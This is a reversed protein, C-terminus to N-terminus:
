DLGLAFYSYQPNYRKQLELDTFYLLAFPAQSLGPTENEHVNGYFRFRNIMPFAALIAELLNPLKPTARFEKIDLLAGNTDMNPYCYADKIVAGGRFVCEKRIYELLKHPWIFRDFPFNVAPANAGLHASLNILLETLNFASARQACLSHITSRSCELSARYVPANFGLYHYYKFLDKNTPQLLIFQRGTQLAYEKANEVITKGYGKGRVSHLTGLAYLYYGSYSVGAQKFSIPFLTLAAHPAESPGVTLLHGLPLGEKSFFDIYDDDENFADKWIQRLGATM